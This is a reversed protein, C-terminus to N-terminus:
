HLLMSKGNAGEAHRHAHGGAGPGGPTETTRSRGAIGRGDAWAAPDGVHFVYSAAVPHGDASLVRYSVTYTGDALRPLAVSVERRDPSLVAKDKTVERGRGDFVRIAYLGSELRENFTLRVADPPEDLVSGAAPEADTLSAHALAPEPMAALAACFAFLFAAFWLTRKRIAGKGSERSLMGWGEGDM